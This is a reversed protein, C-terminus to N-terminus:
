KKIGWVSSNNGGIASFVIKEEGTVEEKQKCFVGNYVVGDITFTIYATGDTVSWVADANKSSVATNQKVAEYVVVGSM